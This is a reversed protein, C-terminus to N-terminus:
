PACVRFQRRLISIPAVRRPIAPRLSVGLPGPASRFRGAGTVWPTCFEQCTRAGKLIPLSVLISDHELILWWKYNTSGRSRDMTRGTAARLVQEIFLFSRVVARWGSRRNAGSVPHHVATSGFCGSASARANPTDHGWLRDGGELPSTSICRSSLPQRKVGIAAGPGNRAIKRADKYKEKAAAWGELIKGHFEESKPMAFM